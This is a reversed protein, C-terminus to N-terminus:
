LNLGYSSLQCILRENEKEIRDRFRHDKIYTKELDILGVKSNVFIHRLSFDGHYIENDMKFDLLGKVKKLITELDGKSIKGSLILTELDAGTEFSMYIHPRGKSNYIPKPSFFGGEKLIPYSIEIARFEMNRKIGRRAKEKKLIKKDPDVYMKSSKNRHSSLLPFWKYNKPNFNSM